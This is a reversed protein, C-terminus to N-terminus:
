ARLELVDSAFGLGHVHVADPARERLLSRFAASRALPADPPQATMFVFDVGNREIAGPVLGAQVVTVQVGASAVAAAIDELSHWDALLQEPARRARDVFFSIQM